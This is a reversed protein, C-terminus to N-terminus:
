RCSRTSRARCSRLGAQVAPLELEALGGHPGSSMLILDSAVKGLSTAATRLEASVRCFVDLNQMADFPDTAPEFETGTISALHAFVRQKYGADSGFGTGIATGGLPLTRLQDRVKALEDALRAALSAYGRFPQGLTM